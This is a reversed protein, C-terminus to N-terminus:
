ESGAGFFKKIKIKDEASLNPKFQYLKKKDPSEPRFEFTKNTTKITIIQAPDYEKKPVNLAVVKDGDRLGVKYANSKKDIKKIVKEKMAAEGDFSSSCAGMMTKELPKNKLLAM